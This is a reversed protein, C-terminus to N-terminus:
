IEEPIRILISGSKLTILGAGMLREAACSMETPHLLTQRHLSEATLPLQKVQNEALAILLMKASRGSHNRSFPKTLELARSVNIEGQKATGIVRLGSLDRAPKHSALAMQTGHM